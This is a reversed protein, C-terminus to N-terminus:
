MGALTRPEQAAMLHRLMRHYVQMGYGTPGKQDWGPWRYRTFALAWSRTEAHYHALIRAACDANGPGSQWGPPCGHHLAAIAQVQFPGFAAGGDGNPCVPRASCEQEWTALMAAVPVGHADAAATVDPARLTAAHAPKCYSLVLMFSVVIAAILLLLVAQAQRERM